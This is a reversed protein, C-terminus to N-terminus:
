RRTRYYGHHRRAQQRHWIWTGSVLPGRIAVTSNMIHPWKLKPSPEDQNDNRPNRTVNRVFLVFRHFLKVLKEEVVKGFKHASIRVFLVFRRFLMLLEGKVVDGLKM